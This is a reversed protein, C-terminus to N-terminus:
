LGIPSLDVRPYQKALRRVRAKLDESLLREGRGLEGINFRTERRGVAEIAQRIKAEERPENVYDLVQRVTAVPDHVLTNYDVWLFDVESRARAAFWSCYFNFYWPVVFDAIFEYQQDAPLARHDVDCFAMPIANPRQILHDRLSVISDFINRGQLLLRVKFSRVFDRTTQSCRCHQHLSFLDRSTHSLMTRFDIEQERSDWGAVGLVNDDWGLVRQLLVTLWTSGTKPAAVHWLHRRTPNVLSAISEICALEPPHFDGAEISHPEGNVFFTELERVRGALCDRERQLADREQQLQLHTKDLQRISRFIRNQISQM